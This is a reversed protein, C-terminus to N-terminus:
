AGKEAIKYENIVGAITLEESFKWFASLYREDQKQHHSQPRHNRYSFRIPRTGPTFPHNATETFIYRM